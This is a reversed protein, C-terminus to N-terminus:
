AVKIGQMQKHHKYQNHTYIYSAIFNNIIINWLKTKKRQKNKKRAPQYSEFFFNVHFLSLFCCPRVINRKYAYSRSIHMLDKSINPTYEKCIVSLARLLIFWLKAINRTFISLMFCTEMFTADDIFEVNDNAVFSETMLRYMYDIM